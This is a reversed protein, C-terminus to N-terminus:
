KVKVSAKKAVPDLPVLMEAAKEFDFKPGAVDNNNQVASIEANLRQDDVTMNALLLDAAQEGSPVAVASARKKAAEMNQKWYRRSAICVTLPIAGKATWKHNLLNTHSDKAIKKWASEGSEIQALANAAAQGDRTDCHAALAAHSVHGKTATAVLDCPKAKDVSVTPDAHPFRATFEGDFTGHDESWLLGPSLALPAVPPTTLRILHSLPVGSAGRITKLWEAFREILKPGKLNKSMRPPPKDEEEMQAEIATWCVEFLALREASFLELDDMPRQCCSCFKALECCTRVNDLVQVKNLHPDRVASNMLLKLQGADFEAMSDPDTVGQNTFFNQVRRGAHDHTWAGGANQAGSVKLREMWLQNLRADDWCPVAAAMTAIVVSLLDASVQRSLEWCLREVPVIANEYHAIEVAISDQGM